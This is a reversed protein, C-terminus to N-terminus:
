PGTDLYADIRRHLVIRNIPGVHVGQLQGQRDIFFTEPIGNMRYTQAIRTGLDPGNPYTIDFEQLYAKAERETDAWNLGVFVVGKERYERWTLELDMAEQRCPECWSAWFNIVVVQGRLDSLRIQQGDFTTFEFDPASGSSM